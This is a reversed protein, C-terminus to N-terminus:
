RAITTQPASAPFEDFEEVEGFRCGSGYVLLGGFVAVAVAGLRINMPDLSLWWDVFALIRAVGIVPLAFGSAMTVFGTARIMRPLRSKPAALLQVVGIVVYVVGVGYLVSPTLLGRGISSLSGPLSIGILGEALLLLGVLSALLNM